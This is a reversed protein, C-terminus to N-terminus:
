PELERDFTLTWVRVETSVSESREMLVGTMKAYNELGKLAVSAPVEGRKGRVHYDLMEELVWERTVSDDGTEDGGRLRALEAAVDPRRLLESATVRARGVSYGARVAAASGNGDMFYEM